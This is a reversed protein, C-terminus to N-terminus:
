SRNTSPSPRPVRPVAHRALAHRRLPNALLFRWFGFSLEAVVRGPTESRLGRTARQRAARIDQTARHQLLQGPDVYWRPEGFRRVSWETLNEHIANRLVVEVHGITTALAASLRANWAYLDLAADPDGHAATLFPGLREPSLRRQLTAAETTPGTM